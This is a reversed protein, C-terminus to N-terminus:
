GQVLNSPVYAGKVGIIFIGKDKLPADEDIAKLGSYGVGAQWYWGQYSDLQVQVAQQLQAIDNHFM